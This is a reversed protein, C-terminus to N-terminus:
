PSRVSFFQQSDNTTPQSTFQFRGPGINSATGVVTWNSLPMSLNTSSLVTLSADQINTFDFQLAGNGLIQTGTLTPPTGLGEQTVPISQLLLEIHATRVPGSNTTFSFSVVGNTVGNITLWTQDSIPAFPGAVNVTAPLMPPLSDSGAALGELRPTPDVFAHPLEMIASDGTNAIYVNGSADVALAEPNKL